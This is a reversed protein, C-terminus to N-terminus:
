NETKPRNPVLRGAGDGVGVGVADVLFDGPRDLEEDAFLEPQLSELGAPIASRKWIVAEELWAFIKKEGSSDVSDYKILKASSLEASAWPAATVNLLLPTCDYEM